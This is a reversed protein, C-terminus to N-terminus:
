QLAAMRSRAPAYHTVQRPNSLIMEPRQRFFSIFGTMCVHQGELATEPSTRFKARDSGYVVATLARSADPRDPNVLTLFTPGAQTGFAHDTPAVVGCVTATHGIHAAVDSPNVPSLANASIAWLSCAAAAIVVKATHM